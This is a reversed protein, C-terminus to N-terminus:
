EHARLRISLPAHEPQQDQKSGDELRLWTHFGEVNEVLQIIRAGRAFGEKGYGNYGTAKGYCLRIGHLDGWYDNVHDHGAFTGKVDGMQLFAAFLGSNINACGVGEYNHGYCPYLDWLEQYEPIPIHFFALSPLPTGNNHKAFAASQKLYWAIQTHDIWEYGEVYELSNSGSDFCYLAASVKNSIKGEVEIVFNGVGKVEAPGSVSLCFESQNQLEMLKDRSVGNEADHNGFVAAWPIGFQDAIKVSALFAEKPKLSYEGHIMDGTFIILDPAEQELIRKMLSYTEQDKPEDNQWHLDTFQVITFTSDERFRLKKKGM